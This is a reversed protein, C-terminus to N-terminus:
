SDGTQANLNASVIVRYVPDTVEVQFIRDRAQGLQRWIARNKYQGAKGLTTWHENGFTSGGDDSWKLMAQPNSGQGSQLGVGPQFQVQLDSYFVRKLDSTLHPARRICPLPAGNDTYNSQSLSYLNGNQFDGVINMGQFLAHCNSRHRHLVNLGDRWARKHWLGTSLDFVWTKDATPFTLVYFEHGAQQYSYAIANSIVSYSAIAAELAHNSIRKPQYGVMQVVIGQGRDDKSLFAISEGLRSVSYKAACGHQMSTGPIITFPFPFGGNDIWVEGDKEGLVFVDRNASMVAIINSAGTLKQGSNLAGSVVSSVNTCGWLNTGPDNYFIFNDTEDCVDGGTFAGDGAGVQAFVGTSINYTYRNFGDVMYASVGNDTISVQGSSSSLTGVNTATFSPNVTYLYPGSVALLTNGGPLTRLGRVEAQAALQAKLVTGPTPYLAIVGREGEKKNPDVECYWNILEQDDQYRSATEYAPGVFGFDSM